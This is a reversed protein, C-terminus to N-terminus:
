TAALLVPLGLSRWKAVVSDPARCSEKALFTTYLSTSRCFCGSGPGEARDELGQWRGM